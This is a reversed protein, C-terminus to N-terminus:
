TTYSYGYVMTGVGLGNSNTSQFKFGTIPKNAGLANYAISDGSVPTSSSVSMCRGDMMWLNTSPDILHCEMVVNYLGSYYGIAMANAQNTDSNGNLYHSNGTTYRFGSDYGGDTYGDASKIFFHMYGNSENSLQKIYIRIHKAGGGLAKGTLNTEFNTVTGSGTINNVYNTAGTVTGSFVASDAFTTTGRMTTANLTGITASDTISIKNGTPITITTSQAGQLQDTKIIGTM